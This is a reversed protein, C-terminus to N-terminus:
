PLNWPQANNLRRHRPVARARTLIASPGMTIPPPCPRPTTTAARARVYEWSKLPELATCLESLKSAARIHEVLGSKATGPASQLTSM